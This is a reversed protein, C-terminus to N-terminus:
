WWLRLIATRITPTNSSLTVTFYKYPRNVFRGGNVCVAYALLRYISIPFFLIGLGFHLM